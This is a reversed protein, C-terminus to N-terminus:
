FHIILGTHEPPVRINDSLEELKKFKDIDEKSLEIPIIITGIRGDKLKLDIKANGKYEADLTLQIENETKIFVEQNAKEIKRFM